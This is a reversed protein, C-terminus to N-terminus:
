ESFSSDPATGAVTLETLKSQNEGSDRDPHSPYGFNFLGPSRGPYIIDISEPSIAAIRM